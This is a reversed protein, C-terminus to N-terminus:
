LSHGLAVQAVKYAGKFLIVLQDANGEFDVGDELDGLEGVAGDFLAAGREQELLRFAV